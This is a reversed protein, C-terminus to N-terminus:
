LQKKIDVFLEMVMNSLKENIERKKIPDKLKIDVLEKIGFAKERSIQIPKKEEESQTNKSKLPYHHFRSIHDATGTDHLDLKMSEIIVCWFDPLTSPGSPSLHSAKYCFGEVYVTNTTM